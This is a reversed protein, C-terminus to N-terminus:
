EIPRDHDLMDEEQSHQREQQVKEGIAAIAHETDTHLADIDGLLEQHAGSHSSQMQALAQDM